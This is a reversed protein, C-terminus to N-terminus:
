PLKIKQLFNALDKTEKYKLATQITYKLTLPLDNLYNSKDDRIYLRAFVGLIKIHRQLGMFDFWKIFTADDININKENKYYLALKEIENQDFEVYCDKLLSVLDYTISGNMADQYDIIGIEKQPTIMINRSHFDRHVFTNQPQSLVINNISEISHDLMKQQNQDLKINLYQKLFWEQMLSTEYMLFKKDYLPLDYILSDQMKIIEKIALKYLTKYNSLDLKDLYHTSGFDNLILYGNKINKEFIHPVNVKHKSLLFNIKIFSKLTDKEQSSDMIIYSKNNKYLRYYKRFSADASAVEIKDYAWGIDQLWKKINNM